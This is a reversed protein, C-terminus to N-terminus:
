LNIMYLICNNQNERMNLTYMKYIRLCGSSKPLELEVVFLIRDLSGELSDKRKHKKSMRTHKEQLNTDLFYTGSFM